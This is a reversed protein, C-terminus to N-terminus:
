QREKELTAAFEDSFDDDKGPERATPEQAATFSKGKAEVSAKFANYAPMDKSAKFVKVGETWVLKLAEATTSDNAKEIWKQALASDTVPGADAFQERITEDLDELDQAFIDSCGLATLTLDIQARKKAMKLVTNAMDAPSVRIQQTQQVKNQWKSWKVRRDAEDAADFEEQCVARRWAYKDEGTSCEGVGYGVENGTGIHRGVCKVRYRIERIRNREDRSIFEEVIPEVAIRFTSLLAESGAKYLSPQKCGPIVGYHVDQKMVSHMVTQITRATQLTDQVSIPASHSRVEVIDNSM